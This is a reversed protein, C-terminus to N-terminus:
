SLLAYSVSVPVDPIRDRHQVAEERVRNLVTITADTQRRWAAQDVAIGHDRAAGFAMQPLYQHHCSTCGSTRSFQSGSSQLLAISREIALKMAGAQPAGAKGSA